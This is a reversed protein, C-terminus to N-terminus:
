RHKVLRTIRERAPLIGFLGGTLVFLVKDGYKEPHKKLEEVMGICAKGTYVQDLILGSEMSFSLQFEMEADTTQAYGEGIYDDILILDKANYTYPMKYTDLAEKTIDEVQDRLGKDRSYVNIGVVDASSGTMYKGIIMGALTGGSGVASFISNFQLGLDKEQEALEEMMAIYGWSGLANSAGEPIFYPNLGRDRLERELDEYVHGIESYEEPTVWTFESGIMAMILTNGDFVEPDEGRLVAIPKMGLRAAAVMTSRVHNSQIGGCTVVTDSKKEVADSLVFELKRIKNGSVLMGTADDRKVYIEKGLSASLAELKEVPTPLQALKIRSPRIMTM